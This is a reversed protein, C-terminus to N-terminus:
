VVDNGINILNIANTAGITGSVTNDGAFTLTGSNAALSDTIVEYLM